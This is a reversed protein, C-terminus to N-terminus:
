SFVGEYEHIYNFFIDNKLKRIKVITDNLQKINNEESTSVDIDFTVNLMNDYNRAINNILIINFNEIQSVERKFIQQKILIDM